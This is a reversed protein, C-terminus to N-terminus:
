KVVRMLKEHEKFLKYTKTDLEKDTLTKVKGNFEIDVKM